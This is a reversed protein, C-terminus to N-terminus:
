WDDGYLDSRKRQKKRPKTQKKIEQAAGKLKREIADLNPNLARFAANAYNRCDLAENRNHGPLKEWQWKNNKYTM